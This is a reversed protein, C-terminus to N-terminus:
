GVMKQSGRPSGADAAPMADPKQADAFRRKLYRYRQELLLVILLMVVVGGYKIAPHDKDIWGGLIDSFWYMLGNGILSGLLIGLFTTFRSMGLLRGFISGGVSGTAALPFGVFAVLGVFTARRMWPQSELIFHGDTVLAAIRPGIKPLRFLFGIHFALLLATMADLYTILLFLQLSSMGGDFDHVAGATGSLIVFRGLLWLALATTAVLRSAFGWGAYLMLGVLLGGSVVLPAFLTTGWLWPHRRRFGAEDAILETLRVPDHEASNLGTVLAFRKTFTVRLKSNGFTFASCLRQLGGCVRRSTAQDGQLGVATNSSM